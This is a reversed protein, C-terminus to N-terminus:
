RRPGWGAAMRRDQGLTATFEGAVLEWDEEVIRTGDSALATDAEIYNARGGAAKIEEVAQKLTNVQFTWPNLPHPLGVFFM